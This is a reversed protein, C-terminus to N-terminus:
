NMESAEEWHEYLLPLASEHEELESKLDKVRQGDRHVAETAFLAHIEGIRHERTAIEAEIEPLKRYPYKRRRRPKDSRVSSDDRSADDRASAEPQYASVSSRADAALGQKIL